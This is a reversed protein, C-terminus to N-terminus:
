IADFNELEWPHDRDFYASEIKRPRVYRRCAYVMMNKARKRNEFEKCKTLPFKVILLIKLFHSQTKRSFLSTNTQNSKQRLFPSWSSFTLLNMTIFSSTWRKKNSVLFKMSSFVSDSRRWEEKCSVIIFSDM